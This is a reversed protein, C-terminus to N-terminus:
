STITLPQSDSCHQRIGRMHGNDTKCGPAQPRAQGTLCQRHRYAHALFRSRRRRHRPPRPPPCQIRENLQQVVALTKAPTALYSVLPVEVVTFAVLTFMLAAGVQADATATSALITVLAAVYEVPPTALALGAIFAVVLSGGELRARISLRNATTMTNPQPLPMSAGNGTVPAPTRQRAWFRAAILVAIVGIATQILAVTPSSVASIAGRLLPLALERLCRLVVLAVTIGATMGGIWFVFLNLMPRPRSLMVATIGIRVPDMAVVLSLVLVASWM